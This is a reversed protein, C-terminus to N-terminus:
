ALFTAVAAREGLQGPDHNIREQSLQDLLFSKRGTLDAPGGEGSAVAEPPVPAGDLLSPDRAVDEIPVLQVPPLHSSQEKLHVDFLQRRLGIAAQHSQLLSEARAQDAAAVPESNADIVQQVYAPHAPYDLNHEVEYPVSHLIRYQYGDPSVKQVEAPLHPNRTAVTRFILQDQETKALGRYLAGALDPGHRPGLLDTSEVLLTGNRTSDVHPLATDYQPRLKLRPPLMSFQGAADSVAPQLEDIRGNLHTLLESHSDYYQQRADLHTKYRELNGAIEGPDAGAAQMYADLASLRKPIDRPAKRAEDLKSLYNSYANLRRPIESNPVDNTKLSAEFRDLMSAPDNVAYRARAAGRGRAVKRVFQNVPTATHPDELQHLERPLLKARTLEDLPQSGAVYATWNASVRDALPQLDTWQSTTGSITRAFGEVSQEAGLPSESGQSIKLTGGDITENLLKMSANDRTLAEIGASASKVFEAIAVSDM